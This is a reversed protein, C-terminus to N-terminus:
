KMVKNVVEGVFGLGGLNKEVTSHYEDIEAKHKKYFLDAKDKGLIFVRESETAMIMADRFSVAPDKMDFIPKTNKLKKVISRSQERILRETEKKLAQEFYDKM